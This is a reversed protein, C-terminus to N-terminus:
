LFDNAESKHQQKLLFKYTGYVTPYVCFFLSAGNGAQLHKKFYNTTSTDFLYGKEGNADMSGEEQSKMVLKGAERTFGKFFLSEVAKNWRNQLAFINEQQDISLSLYEGWPFSPIKNICTLNGMEEQLQAFQQPEAKMM